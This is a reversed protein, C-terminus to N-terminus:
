QQLMPFFSAYIPHGCEPCLQDVPLARLDYGCTICPLDIPVFPNAPARSPAANEGSQPHPTQCNWCDTFQGDLVEGCNPCTWPPAPADPSPAGSVFREVLLKAKDQEDDPVNVCILTPLYLGLAAEEGTVIAPIDNSKLLGALFHAKLSDSSSYITVLKM